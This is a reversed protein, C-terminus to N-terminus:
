EDETRREGDMKAGCTECFNPVTLTHGRNIKNCVSCRCFSGRQWPEDTLPMLWEGHKEETVDATSIFRKCGNNRESAREIEDETLTPFSSKLIMLCAERHFCDRCTM